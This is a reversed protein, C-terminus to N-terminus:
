NCFVKWRITRSPKKTGFLISETKGLHLSLKNDILWERVCQLENCLTVDSGSVLLVNDACLLKYKVSAPMYLIYLSSYSILPGLISGQPVGCTFDRPESIAGEVDCIQTRGTLHYTFWKVAAHGFRMCWLKSVQVTYHNVKDFVKQLDLLIMGVYNGGDFNQTIFDFLNIPCSTTSYAARFGPQLEYLM